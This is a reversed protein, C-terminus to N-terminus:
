WLPTVVKTKKWKSGKEYCLHFIMWVSPRVFTRAIIERCWFNCLKETTKHEKWTNRCKRNSDESKPRHVGSSTNGQCLLLGMCLTVPARCYHQKIQGLERWIPDFSAGTFLSAFNSLLAVAAHSSDCDKRRGFFVQLVCSPCWGSHTQTEYM